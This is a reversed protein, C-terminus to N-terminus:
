RLNYIVFYFALDFFKDIIRNNDLVWYRVLKYFSGLVFIFFIHEYVFVIILLDDERSYARKLDVDIIYEDVGFKNGCLPGVV